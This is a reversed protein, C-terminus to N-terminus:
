SPSGISTTSVFMFNHRKIKIFLCWNTRCCRWAYNTIVISQNKNKKALCRNVSQTVPFIFFELGSGYTIVSTPM